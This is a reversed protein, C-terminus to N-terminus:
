CDAFRARSMFYRISCEFRRTKTDFAVVRGVMAWAHLEKTSTLPIQGLPLSNHKHFALVIAVIVMNTQCNSLYSGENGTLQRAGRGMNLINLQIMIKACRERERARKM